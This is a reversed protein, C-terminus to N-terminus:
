KGHTIYKTLASWRPDIEASPCDCSGQNLNQGCYQCLGACSEQCIPKMPVSLTTYQRIAETLDLVHHADITFSGPEEPPPLPSGSIVDVTPLYEEEITVELPSIFSSLCRSCMLEINSNLVGKVLISGPTRLLEVEGEVLRVKGNDAVDVLESVPCDRTAGVPSQLLQSVNIQM